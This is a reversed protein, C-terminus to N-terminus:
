VGLKECLDELTTGTLAPKLDRPLPEGLRNIWVTEIGLELAPAVDTHLDTAVHILGEAREGLRRRLEQFHQPAPKYARVDEGSVVEAFPIGIHDMAKRMPIRDANTVVCLPWHSGLRRLASVADDFIPWGPMSDAVQLATRDDVKVEHERLVEQLSLAMVERFHRYATSQWHLVRSKLKSAFADWDSVTELLGESELAKRCGENPDVLTGYFEFSIARVRDKM